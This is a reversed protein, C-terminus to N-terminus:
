VSDNAECFMAIGYGGVVLLRRSRGVSRSVGGHV